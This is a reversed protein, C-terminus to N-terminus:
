AYRFGEGTCLIIEMITVVVEVNVPTFSQGIVQTLQTCILSVQSCANPDAGKELLVSMKNVGDYKSATADHLATSGYQDFFLFLSLMMLNVVRAKTNDSKVYPLRVPYTCGLHVLFVIALRSNYDDTIYKSKTHM